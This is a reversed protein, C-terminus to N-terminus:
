KNSSLSSLISKHVCDFHLDQQLPRIYITAQGIMASPDKLYGITYGTSPCQLLALNRSRTSGTIKLFEFGGGEQLKPFVEMLKTRVTEPDNDNGTNLLIFLYDGNM